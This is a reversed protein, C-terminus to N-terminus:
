DIFKKIRALGEEEPLITNSNNIVVDAKDMDTNDLFIFENKSTLVWAINEANPNYRLPEKESFKFLANKGKEILYINNNALEQEKDSNKIFNITRALPSPPIPFDVNYTGTRRISIISFRNASAIMRNAAGLAVSASNASIEKNIKNLNREKELEKLTSKKTIEKQQREFTKLAADYNKEDFVPKVDVYIATDAKELKLNFVGKTNTSHLAINDWNIKYFKKSFSNNDLVEFLINEYAALEPFQKADYEINFNYKQTNAKQPTLLQSETSSFERTNDASKVVNSNDRFEDEISNKGIYSWKGTSDDLSYFNFYNENATFPMKIDIQKNDNVQLKKDGYYAQLQFMGATEFTYSTGGSDYKMPIGSLFIDFPNFFERYLVKVSDTIINGAEDTFANPPITISTNKYKIEGGETANLIFTSYDLQKDPLPPNIVPKSSIAIKEGKINKNNGSYYTILATTTAVLVICSWIIIKKIFLSKALTHSKLVADFNKYNVIEESPPFKRDKLFKERKNPKDPM